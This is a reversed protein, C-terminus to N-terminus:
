STNFKVELLELPFISGKSVENATKLLTIIFIVWLTVKVQLIPSVLPELSLSWVLDGIIDLLSIVLDSTELDMLSETLMSILNVSLLANIDGQNILVMLKFFDLLDCNLILFSSFNCSEVTLFEWLSQQDVGIVVSITHKDDIWLGHSVKLLVEGLNLTLKVFSHDDTLHGDHHSLDQVWAGSQCDEQVLQQILAVM